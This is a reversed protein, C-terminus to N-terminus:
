TWPTRPRRRRRPCTAVWPQRRKAARFRATHPSPLAGVRRPEEGGVAEHHSLRLRVHARHTCCAVGVRMARSELGCSHQVPNRDAHTSCPGRAERQMGRAARRESCSTGSAAAQAAQQLKYWRRKSRGASPGRVSAESGRESRERAQMGAEGHCSLASSRRRSASSPTTHKSSCPSVRRWREVEECKVILLYALPPPTMSARSHLHRCERGLPPVRPRSTPCTASLVSMQGLSRVCPRTSLRNSPAIRWQPARPSAGESRQRLASPSLALLSSLGGIQKSHAHPPSSTTLQPTSPETSGHPNRQNNRGTAHLCAHQQLLTYSRHAPAPATHPAVLHM